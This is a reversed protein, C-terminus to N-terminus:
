PCSATGSRRRSHPFVTGDGSRTLGVEESAIARVLVDGEADFDELLGVCVL